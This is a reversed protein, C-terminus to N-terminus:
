GVKEHRIAGPYCNDLNRKIPSHPSPTNKPWKRRIILNVQPNKKGFNEIQCGGGILCLLTCTFTCLHCGPQETRIIKLIALSSVKTIKQPVAPRPKNKARM